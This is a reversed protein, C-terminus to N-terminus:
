LNSPIDVIRGSARINEIEKLLKKESETKPEIKGNALDTLTKEQGSLLDNEKIKKKIKM